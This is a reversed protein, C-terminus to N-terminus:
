RRLLSRLANGARGALRHSRRRLHLRLRSLLARPDELEARVRVIEGAQARLYTTLADTLNSEDGRDDAAIAHAALAHRTAELYQRGYQQCPELHAGEGWENWANIFVMRTDAHNHRVTDDIAFSLWDFYAQPSSDKLILARERTRPTNDWGTAVCRFFTHAPRARRKYGEAALRYDVVTGAYNGLPTVTVPVTDLSNPPFEYSADFGIQDAPTLDGLVEARVLYIDGIGAAHCESRWRRVTAAMDPFLRTRYVLLLPKGAIRMYRPDRLFPFLSRIFALDDPPSHRQRILCDQEQGDWRRTWSPNAYCLCFPIEIRPNGLLIELPRELLRHGNFWYYYYCFGHVGYRKALDAQRIQVEPQRLDYFGLDAPLRPQHHGVFQPTARAVNTWDTFGSGWWADNEAIPHFQPLYFAILRVPHAMADPQAPETRHPAQASPM